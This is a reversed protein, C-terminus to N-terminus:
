KGTLESFVNPIYIEFFHPTGGEGMAVRSISVFSNPGVM